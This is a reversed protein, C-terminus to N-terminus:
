INTKPSLPFGSYGTFFRESLLLSGVFEVWMHRRTLYDFGPWVPPLRTSESGCWGQEGFLNLVRHDSQNVKCPTNRPCETSNIVAPSKRLIHSASYLLLTFSCMTVNIMCNMQAIRSCANFVNKRLCSPSAVGHRPDQSVPFLVCCAHAGSM